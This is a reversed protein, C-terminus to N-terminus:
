CPWCKQGAGAPQLADLRVEREPEVARGDAVHAVKGARQQQNLPVRVLLHVKLLGHPEHAGQTVEAASAPAPAPAPKM